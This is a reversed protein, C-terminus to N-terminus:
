DREAADEDGAGQLDDDIADDDHEHGCDDEDDRVVDGFADGVDALLDAADDHGHVPKKPASVVDIGLLAAGVALVVLAHWRTM